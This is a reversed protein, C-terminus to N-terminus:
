RALLPEDVAVRISPAEEFFLPLNLGLRTTSLNNIWNDEKTTAPISLASLRKQLPKWVSIAVVTSRKRLFTLVFLFHSKCAFIADDKVFFMDRYRLNIGFCTTFFFTQSCSFISWRISIADANWNRLNISFDFDNYLRFRSRRVKSRWVKIHLLVAHEALM